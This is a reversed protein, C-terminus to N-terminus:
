AEMTNGLNWGLGMDKATEKASLFEKDSEVTGGEGESAGCGCLMLMFATILPLPRILHKM